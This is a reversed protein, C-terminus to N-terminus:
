IQSNEGEILVILIGYESCKVAKFFPNDELKQLEEQLQKITLSEPYKNEFNNIVNLVGQYHSFSRKSNGRLEEEKFRILDKPYM